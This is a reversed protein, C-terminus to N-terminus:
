PACMMVWRAAEKRSASAERQYNVPSVTHRAMTNRLLPIPCRKETRIPAREQPGPLRQLHRPGTAVLSMLLNWEIECSM